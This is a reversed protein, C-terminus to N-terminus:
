ACYGQLAVCRQGASRGPVAPNPPGGPMNIPAGRKAMRHAREAADIAPKLKELSRRCNRRRSTNPNSVLGRRISSGGCGDPHLCSCPPRDACHRPEELGGEAGSSRPPEDNWRRDRSLLLPSDAVAPGHSDCPRCEEAAPLTTALPLRSFAIPWRSSISSSAGRCRSARISLARQKVTDSPRHHGLHKATARDIAGSFSSTMDSRATASASEPRRSSANISNRRSSSSCGSLCGPGAGSAAVSTPRPATRAYRSASRCAPSVVSKFPRDALGDFLPVPRGCERYRDGATRDTTSSPPARRPSSYRAGAFSDGDDGFGRLADDRQVAIFLCIRTTLLLKPGSPRRCPCQSARPCGSKPFVTSRGEPRPRASCMRPHAHAATAPRSRRDDRTRRGGHSAQHLAVNKGSYAKTPCTDPNSTEGNPASAACRRGTCPVMVDHRLSEPSISRRLISKDALSCM